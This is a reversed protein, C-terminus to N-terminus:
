RRLLEVRGVLQRWRDALVRRLAPRRHRRLACRGARRRGVAGAGGCEALGRRPALQRRQSGGPEARHEHGRDLGRLLAPRERGPLRAPRLQLQERDALERVRRGKRRHHVHDSVV